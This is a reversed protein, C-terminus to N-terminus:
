VLNERSQLESTHEESRVDTFYNAFQYFRLMRNEELGIFHEYAFPKGAAKGAVWKGYLIIAFLVVVAIVLQEEIYFYVFLGVLLLDSSRRTPFSYLLLLY